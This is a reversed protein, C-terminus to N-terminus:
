GKEGLESICKTSIIPLQQDGLDGRKRIYIQHQVTVVPILFYILKYILKFM